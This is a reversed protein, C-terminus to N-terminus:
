KLEEELQNIRDRWEQRENKILQYEEESIAGELYKFLKYDSDALKKKLDLIESQKEQLILVKKYTKSDRVLKGDIFKDVGLHISYPDKIELTPKTEDFPYSTWSEIVGDEKAVINIKM